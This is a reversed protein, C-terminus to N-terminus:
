YLGAVRKNLPASAYVDGWDWEFRSKLVGGPGTSGLDFGIGLNVSVGPTLDWDGGVFLQCDKASFGIM